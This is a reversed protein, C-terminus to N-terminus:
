RGELISFPKRLGDHCCEERKIIDYENLSINRKVLSKSREESGSFRSKFREASGYIRSSSSRFLSSRSTKCSSVDCDSSKSTVHPSYNPIEFVPFPRARKELSFCRRLNTKKKVATSSPSNMEKEEHKVSSSAPSMKPLDFQPICTRRRRRTKTPSKKSSTLLKGSASQPEQPTSPFNKKIAVKNSGSSHSSLYEVSSELDQTVEMSPLSTM